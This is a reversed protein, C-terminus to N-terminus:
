WEVVLTGRYSTDLDSHDLLALDVRYRSFKIGIGTTLNGIDSGIRVSAVGKYGVEFGVHTDASIWSQSFQASSVRGEFRIDADGLVTGRFDGLSRSFGLGMKMTPNVIEKNDNSYSLITGTLDQMVLAATLDDRLRYRLGADLGIGQASVDVIKRYIIKATAGWDLRPTQKHGYAFSFVYDAHSAEKKVRFIGLHEETVLIGGGGLRYMSVAAVGNFQSKAIAIYDHNLLSGFTESHMFAAQYGTLSTLGAPNYYTSFIDGDSATYAGGLALPRAGVGLYMFEGAYKEAVLPATMLILFIFSIKFPTKASVNWISTAM